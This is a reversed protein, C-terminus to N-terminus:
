AESVHSPERAILVGRPPLTTPGTVERHTLLDERVADGLHVQVEHPNHNLVFLLAGAANERRTVEVGEPVAPLLPEVGAERCLWPLLDNLLAQGPLAALHLASGAGTRKRTLAPRGAYFDQGFTALVEAGAAGGPLADTRVLDFLQHADYRAQLGDPAHLFVVDNSADPALSDLEEVWLGLLDRLPGPPGGPFVRDSPDAVGSFAGTLLTGGGEVFAQLRAPDEPHLLYLLPALLLRYPSLDTGPGVVDVPIGARHLAAYHKGLEAIYNLHRGPGMSNEAAWWCPWDLRLAVRAPSLAGLTTSGLARLEQGLAAVEQFVRTDSRGSHEIVAGHFKESAGASRRMQFFMVADAGHAVAQYSQLRMVGPRKLPNVPQWNTQSPTQEMLMFPAGDKLGRMIDHMFATHAPPHEPRPYSDWAIVDMHPTWTRYDLPRYAEMFNTTIIADPQAARIADEEIRYMGLINDSNFRMFDLTLGQVATDREGWQVSLVNPVVIQEWDTITQSWFHANWAHNLADLTGYRARLWERFRAECRPCYCAGGFENSIHWLALAPHRGFREALAGALKPAFRAYTPSSPCSNHRDGFKHARGQFDVRLLDPYKTAMWAPHAATGTGLCVRMGRAHLLGFLEDLWGFHYTDEDPQDLTWAFINISLLDIGAEQFNRLDELLTDHDWQEPNWDGGYAIKGLGLDTM